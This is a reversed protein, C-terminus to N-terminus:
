KYMYTVTINFAEKAKPKRKQPNFNTSYKLCKQYGNNKHLQLLFYRFYTFFAEYGSASLPRDEHLTCFYKTM